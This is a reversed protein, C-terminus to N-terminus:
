VLMVGNQNDKCYPHIKTTLKSIQFYLDELKSRKWFQKTKKPDRSIAYSNGISKEIEWFFDNFNQNPNWQSQLDNQYINVDQYEIKWDIFM